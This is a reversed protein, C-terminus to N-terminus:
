EDFHWGVVPGKGDSYYAVHGGRRRALGVPAKAQEGDQPPMPFEEDGEWMGFGLDEPRDPAPPMPPEPGLARAAAVVPSSPLAQVSHTFRQRLGAVNQMASQELLPVLRLLVFPSFTALALTVAGTVVAMASGGRLEDFGVSLAIVILVKSVAVAFFTEVLRWGIRRLAPITVLPVVVPVLVILLTLVVARVVLECWLLWGGIVVAIAVLFLGFGPTSNSLVSVQAALTPVHRAVSGAAGSTMEDTATLVLRALPRAFVVGFVALPAVGLYVRWLSGPDNHVIGHITAVVLGILLLVPSLTLLTLYENSAARVVSTPDGTSTLVHGTTTLMWTVSALVWSTMANFVDGLTAKAVSRTACGLPSLLCSVGM